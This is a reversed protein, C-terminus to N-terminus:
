LFRLYAGAQHAVQLQSTNQGWAWAYEFTYLLLNWVYINRVIVFKLLDRHHSHVHALVKSVWPLWHCCLNSVQRTKRSRKAMAPPRSPLFKWDSFKRKVGWFYHGDRIHRYRAVNLLAVECSGKVVTYGPRKCSFTCTSSSFTQFNGTAVNGGEEVKLRM